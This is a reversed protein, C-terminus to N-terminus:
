ILELQVDVPLGLLEVTKRTVPDKATSRIALKKAALLENVRPCIVNIPKSLVTVLDKRSYCTKADKFAQMIANQGNTLAKCTLSHYSDRQTQTSNM